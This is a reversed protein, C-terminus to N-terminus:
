PYDPLQRPTVSSSLVLIASSRALGKRTRRVPPNQLFVSKRYQPEASLFSQEMQVLRFTQPPRSPQQRTTSQNTANGVLLSLIFRALTDRPRTSRLRFHNSLPPLEVSVIGLSQRADRSDRVIWGSSWLGDLCHFEGTQQNQCFPSLRPQSGAELCDSVVEWSAGPISGPRKHMDFAHLQFRISLVAADAAKPTQIIDV